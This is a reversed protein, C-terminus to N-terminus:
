LQGSFVGKMKARMLAEIVVMDALEDIEHSKWRPVVWPATRDHYFARKQRLSNAYSVYVSGEIFYLDELDQRRVHNPHVTSYPELIGEALHFLYAPHVAEVKAVGVVSEVKDNATLHELAGAIDSADRLPSTPELLVVIDYDEGLSKMHDVAHLTVDISTATDSALHGPRLFPVEAGHRRAIEAIEASDTSVITKDIAACALSQEISWAILPKDCLPLINKRPLGKSGSRAPILSLVRQGNIM